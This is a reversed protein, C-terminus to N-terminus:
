AGGHFRAKAAASRKARTEERRAATKDALAAWRKRACKYHYSGPGLSGAAVIPSEKSTILPRDCGPCIPIM